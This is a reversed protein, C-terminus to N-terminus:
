MEKREGDKTGGKTYKQYYGHIMNWRHLFWELWAQCSKNECNAPDKVRTCTLCPKENVM